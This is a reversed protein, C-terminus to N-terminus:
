QNQRTSISTGTHLGEGDPGTVCHFTLTYNEAGPGSKDVLVEYVGAGGNVWVISSSSTDADVPDTTSALQAGRNVQVSVYPAAAPSADLVQMRLSGPPGSGDDSCTVHYLDTAGAGAGLSGNQTHALAPRSGGLALVLAVLPLAHQARRSVGRLGALLMCGVLALRALGSLTPVSPAPETGLIDTGTEVGTGDTGTMCAIALTYTEEGAETKDVFVEYTGAGGNVWTLPSPSVDGDVADTGNIAVNGKLTQVSVFPAAVPAADLVQTALSLPAGRGDDFCTVEFYDTAGAELELSGNRSEASAGGALALALALGGPLALRRATSM